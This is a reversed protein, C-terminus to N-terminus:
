VVKFIADYKQGVYDPSYDIFNSDGNPDVKELQLTGQDVLHMLYIMLIPYLKPTGQSYTERSFGREKILHDCLQKATYGEQLYTLLENQHPVLSKAIAPVHSDSLLTEQKIEKKEEEFDGFLSLQEM